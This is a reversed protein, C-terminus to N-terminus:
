VSACVSVNPTDSQIKANASGAPVTGGSTSGIKGSLNAYPSVQSDPPSVGRTAGPESCACPSLLPLPSSSFLTFPPSLPNGTFELTVCDSATNEEEAVVASQQQLQDWSPVVASADLGQIPEMVPSGGYEPTADYTPVPPNYDNLDVLNEQVGWSGFPSHLV